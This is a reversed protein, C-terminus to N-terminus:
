YLEIHQEKLRDLIYQKPDEKFSWLKPQNDKLWNDIEGFPDDILAWGKPREDKLYGKIADWPDDFFDAVGPAYEDILGNLDGTKLRDLIDAGTDKAWTDVKWLSAITWALAYNLGTPRDGIDGLFVRIWLFPPIIPMLKHLKHVADQLMELYFAIAYFLGVKGAPQDDE